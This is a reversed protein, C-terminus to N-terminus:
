DKEEPLPVDEGPVEREEVPIISNGRRDHPYPAEDIKLDFGEGDPEFSFVLKKLKLGRRRAARQYAMCAEVAAAHLRDVSGHPVPM